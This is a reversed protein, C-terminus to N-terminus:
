AVAGHHQFCTHTVRADISTSLYCHFLYDCLFIPGVTISCLLFHATAYWMGDAELELSETKSLCKMLISHRNFDENFLTGCSHVLRYFLHGRIRGCVDDDYDYLRITAKILSPMGELM